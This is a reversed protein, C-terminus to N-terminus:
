GCTSVEFEVSLTLDDYMGVCHVFADTWLDRNQCAEAYKLLALAHDPCDRFDLYDQSDLYALMDDENQKQNRRFINMRELLSVLAEGLRDGVMPLDYMRAFLNRTTIHYRFADERSLHSPAPVYLEYIIDPSSASSIAGHPSSDVAASLPNAVVPEAPFHDLFSQFGSSEIDALSV